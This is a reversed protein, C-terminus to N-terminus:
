GMDTAALPPLATLTRGGDACTAVGGAASSKFAPQLHAHARAACCPPSCSCGRRRQSARHLRHLGRLLQPQHRVAVGARRSCLCVAGECLACRATVRAWKQQLARTGHTSAATCGVDVCFLAFLAVTCVKAPSVQCVEARVTYASFLSLSM